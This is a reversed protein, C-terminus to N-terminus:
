KCKCLYCFWCCYISWNSGICSKVVGNVIGEGVITITTNSALSTTPSIAYLKLDTGGDTYWSSGNYMEMTNTDSNMRIEGSSPSFPRQATTGVPLDLSGTHTTDGGLQTEALIKANSAMIRFVEGNHVVILKQLLLTLTAGSIAYDTTPKMAVGNYFVFVDNTTHM